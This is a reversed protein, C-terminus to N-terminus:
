ECQNGRGNMEHLSERQVSVEPNCNCPGRGAILDCWEDHAVIAHFVTGRRITGSVMAHLAADLVPQAYRPLQDNM